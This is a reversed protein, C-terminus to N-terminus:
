DYYGFNSSRGLHSQDKLDGAEGITKLASCSKEGAYTKAAEQTMFGAKAHAVTNYGTTVVFVDNKLLEKVM